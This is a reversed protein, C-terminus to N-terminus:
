CDYVHDRYYKSCLRGLADLGGDAMASHGYLAVCVIPDTPDHHQCYHKLVVDGWRTREVQPFILASVFGVVISLVFAIPSWKWLLGCDKSPLLNIARLSRKVDESLAAKQYLQRLNAGQRIARMVQKEPNTLGMPLQNAPIVLRQELDVM